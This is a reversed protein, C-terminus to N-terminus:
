MMYSTIYLIYMIYRMRYRHVTVEEGGEGEFAGEGGGGPVAAAERPQRDAGAALEAARPDELLGRGAPGRGQSIM